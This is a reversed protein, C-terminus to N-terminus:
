ALAWSAEHDSCRALFPQSLLGHKRRLSVQPDENGTSGQVDEHLLDLRSHSDSIHLQQGTHDDPHPGEVSFVTCPLAHGWSGPGPLGPRRLNALPTCTIRACSLCNLTALSRSSGLTLLPGQMGGCGPMRALCDGPFIVTNVTHEM